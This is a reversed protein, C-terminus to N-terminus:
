SYEEDYTSNNDSRGSTVEDYNLISDSFKFNSEIRLKDSFKYGFAANLNENQYSDKELNDSMASIGDTSFKELTFSYNYKNFNNGFTYVLNKKNNSGLDFKLSKNNKETGDRSYINVVGGIASSGYISSQNGKLIEVSKISGTTVNNLYFANDPTSPDSQKVGNIYVNTYRKPLGRLQILSNTGTGGQRSFSAGSVEFDFIDGLFNENLGSLSEENIVTLDSGVSSLSQSTKSPSIVVIPIESYSVNFNFFICISLLRIVSV